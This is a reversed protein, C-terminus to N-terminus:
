ASPIAVPMFQDSCRAPTASFSKRSNLACEVKSPYETWNDAATAKPGVHIRSGSEVDRDDASPGRTDDRRQAGGVESGPRDQNRAGLKAAHGRVVPRHWHAREGVRRSQQAVCALETTVADLGPLEGEVIRGQERPGALDGAFHARPRREALLEVVEAYDDALVSPCSLELVRM